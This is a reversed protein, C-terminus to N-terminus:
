ISSLPIRKIRPYALIKRKKNSKKKKTRISKYPNLFQLMERAMYTFDLNFFRISTFKRSYLSKSIM